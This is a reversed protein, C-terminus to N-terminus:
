KTSKKYVDKLKETCAKQAEDDSMTKQYDALCEEYLPKASDVLGEPVKPLTKSDCASVLCSFSVIVLALSKNSLFSM